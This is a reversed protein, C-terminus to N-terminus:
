FGPDDESDDGDNPPLDAVTAPKSGVSKEGRKIREELDPNYFKIIKAPQINGTDKDGEYKLGVSDGVQTPEIRQRMYNTDTVNVGVVVGDERKLAIGIQQKFGDRAPSIWWGQFIGAVKDGVNKRINVWEVVQDRASLSSSDFIDTRMTANNCKQM